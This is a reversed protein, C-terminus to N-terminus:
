PSVGQALSQEVEQRAVCLDELARRLSDAVEKGTTLGADVRRDFFLVQDGAELRTLIDEFWISSDPFHEFVEGIAEREDDTWPKHICIRQAKAVVEAIGKSRELGLDSWAPLSDLASVAVTTDMEAGFWSLISDRSEIIQEIVFSTPYDEFAQAVSLDIDEDRDDDKLLALVEDFSLEDPWSSLFTGLAFREAKGVAFDSYAPKAKKAKKSM